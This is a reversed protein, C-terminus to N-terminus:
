ADVGGAHLVAVTGGQHEILDVLRERLEFEDPGVAAIGAVLEGAPHGFAEAFARQTQFDDTAAVRLFAKDNERPAPHDFAGEAPEIVKSAQALVVLEAGIGAFGEDEEGGREKEDDAEGPM